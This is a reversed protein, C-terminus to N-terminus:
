LALKIGNNYPLKEGNEGIHVYWEYNKQEIWYPSPLYANIREKTTKTKWGGNDLTVFGNDFTLIDTNHFRIAKKGNGYDIELTNNAVRKTKNKGTKKFFGVYVQFQGARTVVAYLAGHEKLLEKTEKEFQCVTLAPEDPAGFGSSDAFLEKVLEYGKLEMTEQTVIKSKFVKEWSDLTIRM